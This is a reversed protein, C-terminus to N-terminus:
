DYLVCRVFRGPAIERLEPLGQSCVPRAKPCRPAFSCGRPLATLDPVEYGTDVPEPKLGTEPKPAANRLLWTYPHAPERIVDDSPGLEVLRGAYMIAIRDAMYHAGALDHTIFIYSLGQQEKLDLLLNMIDLRVSVDLMSTPEDALVLQPGVALARAIGIRQRQGGSLEHPLKDIYREPPVLGCQKLLREVHERLADGRAIGHLKLPRSLTYCVTHLPNLSAYPDQFIMQVSKRFLLLEGRSMREKVPEGNLRITGSTPLYLRCILRAVTTKGSGSEGVLAVVEGKKVTLSFDTVAHVVRTRGWRGIRFRKTLGAVELLNAASDSPRGIGNGQGSDVHSM